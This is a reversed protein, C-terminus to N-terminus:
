SASDLLSIPDVDPNHVFGVLTPARKAVGKVVRIRVRNGHITAKVDKPGSRRGLLTHIKSELSATTKGPLRIPATITVVVTTGSPMTDGVAARLREIVRTAVKDFRLGSQKKLGTKRILKWDRKTINKGIRFSAATDHISSNPM